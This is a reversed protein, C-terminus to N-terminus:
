SCANSAVLIRTSGSVTSGVKAGGFVSAVSIPLDSGAGKFEHSRPPLGSFLADPLRVPQGVSRRADTRGWLEIERLMAGPKAPRWEMTLSDSSVPNSLDFRNWRAGNKRLDIVQEASKGDDPIIALAGEADDYIGVRQIETVDSFHLRFKATENSVLGSGAREDFLAAIQAPSSASDLSSLKAPRIRETPGGLHPALPPSGVVAASTATAAGASAVGLQGVIM